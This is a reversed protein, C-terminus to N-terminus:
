DARTFDIHEPRGQSDWFLKHKFSCVELSEPTVEILTYGKERDKYFVKWSDVWYKKKLEPDDVIRAKGSVAVYSSGKSNFYYVVVNNNNRIQEVKRSQPLTGFWIIWNEDPPFPAMERIHPKGEADVTVLAKCQASDVILRATKLISDRAINENRIFQNQATLISSTVLIFFITYKLISGLHM